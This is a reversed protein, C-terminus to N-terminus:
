RPENEIVERLRERATELEKQPTTQSKKIFVHLMVIRQGIRACFLVRGIGEKGKLRLEFLKDGMARTHPMGLNPGMTRMLDTLHVYRALLRAPLALIAKSVKDSYYSITWEEVPTIYCM